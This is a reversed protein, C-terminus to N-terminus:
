HHDSQDISHRLRELELKLPQWYLLFISAAHRSLVVQANVNEKLLRFTICVFLDKEEYNALYGSSFRTITFSCRFFFYLM